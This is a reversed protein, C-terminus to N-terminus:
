KQAHCRKRSLKGNRPKFAQIFINVSSIQPFRTTCLKWVSSAM